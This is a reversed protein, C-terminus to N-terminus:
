EPTEPNNVRDFVEPPYAVGLLAGDPEPPQAHEDNVARAWEAVAAPDPAIEPAGHAGHDAQSGADIDDADDVAVPEVYGPEHDAHVALWDAEPIQARDKEAM